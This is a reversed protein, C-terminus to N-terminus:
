IWLILRFTSFYFGNTSWNITFKISSNKLGDDVTIEYDGLKM